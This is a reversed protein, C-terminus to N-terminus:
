PFLWGVALENSNASSNNQIKINNKTKEQENKSKDEVKLAYKINNSGNTEHKFFDRIKISSIENKSSFKEIFYANLLM